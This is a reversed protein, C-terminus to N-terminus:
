TASAALRSEKRAGPAPEAPSCPNRFARIPELSAINTHTWIHRDVQVAYWLSDLLRRFGTVQNWEHSGPQRALRGTVIWSRKGGPDIKQLFQSLKRFVLVADRRLLPGLYILQYVFPIKEHCGLSDFGCARGVKQLANHLLPERRLFSM